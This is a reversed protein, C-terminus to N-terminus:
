RAVGNALRDAVDKHFSVKEDDSMQSILHEISRDNLHYEKAFYTAYYPNCNYKSSIYHKLSYGWPTEKWVKQLYKDFIDYIPASDYNGNLHQNLYDIALEICLNGAGRGMGCVSADLIIARHDDIQSLVTIMNAFALQM